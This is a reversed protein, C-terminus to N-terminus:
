PTSMPSRQISIASLASGRIPSQREANVRGCQIIANAALYSTLVWEGDTVTASLGGAIYRLAVVAITTDLVEMFTPVVVIAAVVWPNGARSRTPSIATSTM